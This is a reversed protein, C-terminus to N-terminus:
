EVPLCKWILKLTLKASSYYKLYTWTSEFGRNPRVYLIRCIGNPGFWIPWKMNGEYWILWIIHLSYPLIWTQTKWINASFIDITKFKWITEPNDFELGGISVSKRRKLLKNTKLKRKPQAWHQFMQKWTAFIKTSSFFNPNM